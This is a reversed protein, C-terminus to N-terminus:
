GAVPKVQYSDGQARRKQALMLGVILWVVALPFTPGSPVHWILVHFTFSAPLAMMFLWALWRPLAKSRRLAFGYITMGTSLVVLGIWSVLFLDVSGAWYDGAVGLLVAVLSVVM